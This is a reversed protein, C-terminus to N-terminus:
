AGDKTSTSTSDPAIRWISTLTAILGSGCDDMRLICLRKLQFQAPGPFVEFDTGSSDRICM